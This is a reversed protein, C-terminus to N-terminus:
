AKLCCLEDFPLLFIFCIFFFILIKGQLVGAAVLGAVETGSSNGQWFAWPLGLLVGQGAPLM